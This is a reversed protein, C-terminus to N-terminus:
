QKLFTYMCEKNLIDIEISIDILVFESNEEPSYNFFNRDGKSQIKKIIELRELTNAFTSINVMKLCKFKETKFYEIVDILFEIDINVDIYEIKDLVNFVEKIEDFNFVYIRLKRIYPNQQLFELNFHCHLEELKPLNLKISTFEALINEELSEILLTKLSPIELGKLTKFQEFEEEENVYFDCLIQLTELNESKPLFKVFDCHNVTLNKLKPFKASSSIFWSQDMFFFSSGKLNMKSSGHDQLMEFVTSTFPIALDLTKLNNQNKLFHEAIKECGSLISLSELQCPVTISSNASNSYWNLKVSKLTNKNNNMLTQLMDLNTCYNLEITHLNQFLKSYGLGQSSNYALTLKKLKRFTVISEPIEGPWNECYGNGDVILNELNTFESIIRKFLKFDLPKEFDFMLRQTTILDPCIPEDYYQDIENEEAILLRNDIFINEIYKFKEKLHTVCKKLELARHNMFKVIKPTIQASILQEFLIVEEGFKINVVVNKCNRKTRSAAQINSLTLPKSINITTQKEYFEKTIEYGARSTLSINDMDSKKLFKFIELRVDECINFLHLPEEM